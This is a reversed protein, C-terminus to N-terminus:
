DCENRDTLTTINARSYTSLYIFQQYQLPALPPMPASLYSPLPHCSMCTRWILLWINHPRGNIAADPWRPIIHCIGVTCYLIPQAVCGCPYPHHHPYRANGIPEERQRCPKKEKMIGEELLVGAGSRNSDKAMVGPLVGWPLVQHQTLIRWPSM